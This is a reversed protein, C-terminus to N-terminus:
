PDLLWIVTLVTVAILCLGAFNLAYDPGPQKHRIRLEGIEEHLKAALAIIVAAVLVPDVRM